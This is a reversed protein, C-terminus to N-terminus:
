RTVAYWFGARFDNFAVKGGMLYSGRLLNITIYMHEPLPAGSFRLGPGTEVINAWAQRKGDVTLNAGWYFQTQRTGLATTYGLRGQQYALFDNGFRSIFVGDIATDAFRGAKESGMGRGVGQAVSVGARYDPMAHGTLYGITSGAEAWAMVGRWVPTRLGLGLVFSSESLYQPSIGGIANQTLASRTDGVFRLSVYPRVPWGTRMETKVQAYAFLDRWRTSLVPFFWATTHFRAAASHLNRWAHTAEHAVQVDTSKRALDFWRIAQADQHLVNYTWGLKLMVNFDGPDSEYATELYKLADKMYGAKISREAMVKADVAPPQAERHSQEQPLHLVARARNALEEDSGALVRDFLPQASAGEGRGYLLFALQTASLLDEPAAETLRRFEVEAEPQLGMKLLLYALERRLETNDPDVDLARRFEAVYPYHEPLLERAMEAARAEGGRSAALLAANADETRNQAKWVRGLDVLVSRRDPLLRWAKEYHEGALALEDREEALTALEFHASFNAAGMDIAKKWREIGAALPADINQFAQEASAQFPGAGARRIRDFVRRAQVKEKTEYCLFAYEMATQTDGEDLAMAERFQDRALVNEGVKLYAYALDKRISARKPAAEAGKLFGTIASDYDRARLAAYGRTLPEYAPDPAQALAVWCVVFLIAARM